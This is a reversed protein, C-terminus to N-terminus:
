GSSWSSGFHIAAKRLARTSNDERDNRIDGVNRIRLEPVDTDLCLKTFWSSHTAGVLPIM